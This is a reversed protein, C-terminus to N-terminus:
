CRTVDDNSVIGLVVIYRFLIILTTRDINMSLLNLFNFIRVVFRLSLVKMALVDPSTIVNPSLESPPLLELSYCGESPKCTMNSFKEPFYTGIAFM